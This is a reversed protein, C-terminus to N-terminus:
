LSFEVNGESGELYRIEFSLCGSAQTFAGTVTVGELAGEIVAGWGPYDKVGNFGASFEGGENTIRFNGSVIPLGREDWDGVVECSLENGDIVFDGRAEFTFVERNDDSKFRGVARGTVQGMVFVG